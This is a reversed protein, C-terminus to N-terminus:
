LYLAIQKAVEFYLLRSDKELHGLIRRQWTADLHDAAYVFQYLQLGRFDCVAQIAACEMEVCICGQKVRKNKNNVTERYFADTTWTHGIVYEIELEDLISALKHYNKIDIFDNAKAYHYSTGEDRYAKDPVILKGAPIEVLTGCSGFVIYNKAGFLANLEEILGVAMPTGVGTLIVGIDTGVIRYVYSKFAASGLTLIEDIIEIDKREYLIDILKNSFLVIFTDIQYKSAILKEQETLTDEAKIIELSKDDFSDIIM